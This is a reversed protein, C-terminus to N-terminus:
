ADRSEKEITQIEPFKSALFDEVESSWWGPAESGDASPATNFEQSLWADAIKAGDAASTVLGGMALVNANNISRSHRAAAENECTAAYVGSFKNAVIGVGMGTGCFLMGRTGERDSQVMKAVNAAAVYYKDSGTDVVDLGKGKLHAVVSDKLEEGFGDAGVVIKGQYSAASSSSTTGAHRVLGRPRRSISRAIPSSAALMTTALKFM